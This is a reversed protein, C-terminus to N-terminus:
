LLNKLKRLFYVRTCYQFTRLNALQFPGILFARWSSKVAKGLLGAYVYSAAYERYILSPDNYYPQKISEFYEDALEPHERMLDDTGTLKRQQALFIVVEKALHREVSIVKSSSNPHQRYYYLVEPIISSEYKEVILFSLDYDQYSLGDFYSRFKGGVIKLSETRIMMNSGGIVNLHYMRNLIDVHKTPKSSIRIVKGSIDTWAVQSSAIGIRKNASFVNVLSRLREPHSFDDADQFTILDGKALSLLKNRTKLLKLNSDNQTIIIRKEGKSITSIVEFTQDTSCDDCILLEWNRYTQYIISRIAEAIFKEANYAPMIISVLPGDM